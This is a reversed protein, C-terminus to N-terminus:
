SSITETNNRNALKNSNNRCTFKNQYLLARLDSEFQLLSLSQNWKNSINNMVVKRQFNHSFCDIWKISCYNAQLEIQKALLLPM